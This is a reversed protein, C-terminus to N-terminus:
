LSSESEVRDPMLKQSGLYLLTFPIMLFLFQGLQILLNREEFSVWRFGLSTVSFALFTGLIPKAVKPFAISGFKKKLTWFLAVSSFLACITTALAVSIPGLNLVFVFLANLVANSAVAILSIWVPTKYDRMAYFTSSFIVTLCMPVLGLGYAVLAFSTEQVANPTFAGHGYILNVSVGALAVIMGTIPILWSVARKLSPKLLAYAEKPSSARALPPLLAGAFGLGVLALPVQQLRLAYWLIAPGELSAVRAFLADLASNIQNAGVGVLVFFFPKLIAFLDRLPFKVSAYAYKRLFAFAPPLTFAWQIFLGVVVIVSLLMLAHDIPQKYVLLIGAMWVCNVLSPAMSPRFFIQECNLLASNLSYLAIFLLSPLLLMTLRIVEKSGPSLSGFLLSAGLGMEILLILGILILSLASILASFFAAARGPDQKRLAEFHPVFAAHLAGEGFLRRLLHAFRYAMWFAAVAPAAGFAAGM